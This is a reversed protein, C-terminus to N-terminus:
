DLADIKAALIFDNETLGKAAHTTLTITLIKYDHIFLDPHHGEKEALSAVTNVFGVTEKFNKFTYDKLIREGDMRWENLQALLAVARDTTLPPIGGECAICEKDRLSETGM